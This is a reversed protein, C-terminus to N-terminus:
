RNCFLRLGTEKKTYKLFTAGMFTPLKMDLDDLDDLSQEWDDGDM